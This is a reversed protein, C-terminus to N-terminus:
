AGRRAAEIMAAGNNYFIDELDSRSLGTKEAAHRFALLEEYMFLTLQEAEQGSVERMNPDGSVDGYRGKPVLNIYIGNECIRRMRMRLIPLDSGFLIRKPGLGRILQEFVWANTNASFDVCLKETEKLVEFANGVDVDCYARGVHALIVRVGPYDREIELIQALNVPDRLRADRPIHLMVIWRREHMLELQHPPLFDFIRIKPRPLYSPALNLYVKIGLFGGQEVKREVEDASWEPVAFLLAPLDYKKACRSVYDNLGDASEANVLSSFIMPTVQKGPFLLKYCELHDEIPNEKAVLSPWSVVRDRKVNKKLRDLWVHTHIDIMREPLFDRLKEEYVRRDIDNIEVITKM